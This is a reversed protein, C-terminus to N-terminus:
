KNIINSNKSFLQKGNRSYYGTGNYPRRRPHQYCAPSCAGQMQEGCATCQVFHENCEPNSCNVMRVEATGCNRCNSILTPNVENIPTVVRKDFVYCWGDFDKGGTEKAYRIIGGDIQFVKDADFGSQIMYATAKECRIGGTCYTIIRKGKLQERLEDVKHPFDRFTDLDMTIANKFKGVLHEVNNRTDLMVVDDQDKLQLVEDPQLYRGTSVNPDINPVGFHVIEPRYRVHIKHFSLTEEDDIKFTIGALLPDNQLHQMYQQCQSPTGSVTGNVGEDAILVRGVVGLDHAWQLHQEAYQAANPIRAFKYFLLTQYPKVVSM